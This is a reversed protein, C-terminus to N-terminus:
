QRVLSMITEALKDSDHRYFTTTDMFDGTIIKVGQKKRSLDNAILASGYRKYWNAIKSKTKARNKHVVVHSIRGSADGLYDKIVALFDSASFGDTEGRKTLLNVVYVLKANSKCLAENIGEVLLTAVISTYLDGPGLVILDAKEIAKAAKDFVKAKPTLYVRKIPYKLKFNRMDIRSEGYVRTGDTLIAALNSKDLTVPYVSGSLNFIRAAEDIARDMSGTIQVLAALLINGVSHGALSKGNTFRFDFVEELTKRAFPLDSLAMIARRVDGPPLIDLEKRLRGTSGGSDCMSVIASLEIPYKKLGMLVTYTGTGGGIVVVKKKVKRKKTSQKKVM